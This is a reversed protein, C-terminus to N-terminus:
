VLSTGHFRTHFKNAFSSSSQNLGACRGVVMMWLLFCAICLPVTCSIICVCCWAGITIPLALVMGGIGWLYGFLMLSVLVVLPAVQCLKGLFHPEIFDGVIVQAAGPLAIALLATTLTQDPDFLIVPV